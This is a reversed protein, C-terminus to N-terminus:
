QLRLFSNVLTCDKLDNLCTRTKTKQCTNVLHSESSACLHALQDHFLRGVPNLGDGKLQPALGGADDAGIGVQVCSHLACMISEEEVHHPSAQKSFWGEARGRREQMERCAPTPPAGWCAHLVPFPSMVTHHLEYM